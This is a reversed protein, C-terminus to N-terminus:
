PLEAPQQPPALWEKESGLIREPDRYGSDTVFEFLLSYLRSPNQAVQPFNMLMSLLKESRQMKIARNSTDRVGNTSIEYSGNFAAFMTLPTEQQQGTLPDIAGPITSAGNIEEWLMSPGENGQYQYNLALLLEGISKMADALRESLFAISKQASDNIQAAETATIGSGSQVGKLSDSVGTAEQGERDIYDLLAIAANPSYGQNGFPQMKAGPNEFFSDPMTLVGGPGRRSKIDGIHAGLSQAVLIEPAIGIAMADVALRLLTTKAIQVDGAGAAALSDGYFGEIDLYPSLAVYPRKGHWWPSPKAQLLLNSQEHLIFTWDTATENSQVASSYRYHVITLEYSQARFNLESNNNKGAIGRLEDDARPLPDDGPLARLREIAEADIEGLQVLQLLQQGSMMVRHYVGPSDNIDANARPFTGFHEITVLELWPADYTVQEIEQANIEGAQELANGYEDLLVVRSQQWRQRKERRTSWGVEIIATGDRLAADFARELVKRAKIKRIVQAQLFREIDDAFPKSQRNNAEVRWLPDVGLLAPVFHSLLAFKAQKVYPILLESANPWPPSTRPQLPALMARYQKIRNFHAEAGSRAQSIDAILRDAIARQEERNIQLAQNNLGM